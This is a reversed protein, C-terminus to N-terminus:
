DDISENSLPYIHIPLLQVTFVKLCIVVLIYYLVDQFPQSCIYNTSFSSFFLSKFEFISFLVLDSVTILLFLTLFLSQFYADIGRRLACRGM